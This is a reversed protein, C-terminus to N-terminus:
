LARYQNISGIAPGFLEHQDLPGIVGLMRQGQSGREFANSASAPGNLKRIPIAHCAGLPSLPNHALHPKAEGPYMLDVGRRSPHDNAGM